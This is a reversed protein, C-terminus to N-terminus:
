LIIQGQSIGLAFLGFCGLLIVLILIFIKLFQNTREAGDSQSPDKPTSRHVMKPPDNM